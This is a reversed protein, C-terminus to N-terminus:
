KWNQEDEDEEMAAAQEGDLTQGWPTARRMPTKSARADFGTSRIQSKGAQICDTVVACVPGWTM